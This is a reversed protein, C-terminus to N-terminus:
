KYRNLFDDIESIRKKVDEMFVPDQQVEEDELLGQYRERQSRLKLGLQERAKKGLIQAAQWIDNLEDKRPVEKLIGVQRAKQITALTLDEPDSDQTYKELLNHYNEYDYDGFKPWLADVIAMVKENSVKKFFRGM